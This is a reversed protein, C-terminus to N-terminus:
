DEAGQQDPPTAPPTELIAQLQAMDGVMQENPARFHDQWLRHVDRCGELGLSDRQLFHVDFALQYLWREDPEALIRDRLWVGTRVHHGSNALIKTLQTMTEWRQQLTLRAWEGDVYAISEEVRGLNALVLPYYYSLQDLSEDGHGLRRTLELCAEVKRIVHQYSEDDEEPIEQARTLYVQSARLLGLPYNGKLNRGNTSFHVDTRFEGYGQWVDGTNWDGQALHSTLEVPDADAPIGNLTLFERRAVNSDGELLARFDYIGFLNAILREPDVSPYGDRTRDGILRYALGEMQLRGLHEIWINEFPITAAFFIPRRGENVEIIRKIVRDKYSQGVGVRRRDPSVLGTLYIRAEQLEIFKGVM